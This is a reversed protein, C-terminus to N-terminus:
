AGGRRVVGPTTAVKLEIAIRFEGPKSLIIQFGMPDSGQVLVVGLKEIERM